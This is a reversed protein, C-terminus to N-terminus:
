DNYELEEYDESTTLETIKDLLDNVLELINVMEGDEIRKSIMTLPFITVAFKKYQLCIDRGYEDVVVAWHFEKHKYQIYDGLVIGLSQLEYTNNPQFIKNDIMKQISSISKNNDYDDEIQSENINLIESIRSNISVFDSYRPEFINQSKTNVEEITAISSSIDNLINEIDEENNQAFEAFVTVTIVIIHNKYGVEFFYNITEDIPNEENYLYYSKDNALHAKIGKEKAVEIIRRYMAQTDNSDKPEMTIVTIRIDAIDLEPDYLIVTDDNEWESFYNNPVKISKLGDGIEFLKM